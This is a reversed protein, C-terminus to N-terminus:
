GGVLSIYQLVLSGIRAHISPTLRLRLDLEKLCDRLATTAERGRHLHGLLLSVLLDEQQASLERQVLAAILDATVSVASDQSCEPGELTALLARTGEDTVFDNAELLTLVVAPEVQVFRYHLLALRSVFVSYEEHTLKGSHRLERLVEQTNVAEIGFGRALAAQGLDDSVLLPQDESMERGAFISGVGIDTIMESLQKIIDSDIDLESYSPMPEFSEALTLVSRTFEQHEEWEGESMEVLSFTGNINKGVHGLPPGSMTADHMSWRLEDLISQPVAVQKFRDRLKQGLGLEHVTLLALMDLVIKDASRLVEQAKQSERDDGSGFRIRIEDSKTCARWFEPAPVGLSASLFAFPVPEDRYLEHLKRFYRDREEVLGFIKAVGEQTVPISSLHTNDPFRTPYLLTTEQLAHVYKSQIDEIIYSLEQIGEEQLTVREGRQRGLLRQALDSNKAVKNSIHSEEGTELIHWWQEDSDGRLLVITGVEVSEPVKVDKHGGMFLAFYGLHISADDMGCRRAMYADSLWDEEGLYHKLQALKLLAIPEHCLELANIQRVQCLVRAREGCRSLVIAFQVRDVETADDQVCISEWCEVASAIDGVRGLIQAETEVVLKPPYPHAERIERTWALAERLRGSNWFSGLLIVAGPHSVNGDIAESFWDAADSYREQHHCLIALRWVIEMRDDNRALSLAELLITEADENTGRFHKHTAALALLKPDHPNQDLANKILPEITDEICLFTEVDCLLEVKLIDDWTPQDLSIDCRLLTAATEADGSNFQALALLYLMKSHLFQDQIQDFIAIAEVPRDTKFLIVGKIYLANSDDPVVRLVDEVDVAAEDFAGIALRAGARINRATSCLAQLETTELLDLARTAQEIAELYLTFVDRDKRVDAAKLLCGALVLRADYDFEDDQVLRRSLTVAEDFRQQDVWIQALVIACQQDAVVWNETLIFEDLRETEGAEWLAEILACAAHSVRPERELAQSALEIAQRPDNSLRAVVSANTLATTNNPQLCYAQELYACGEEIDDAAIACSGLNTLLRFELDIPINKASDKLINLLSQASTVKGARTLDRASDLKSALVIHKSDDSTMTSSSQDLTVTPVPRLEALLEAKLQGISKDFHSRTDSHLQEQRYALTPISQDSQLLGAILKSLFTSVIQQVLTESPRLPWCFEGVKIFSNFIKESSDHKGHGLEDFITEFETSSIWRNLAPKVEIGEFQNCTDTIALTVVDQKRMLFQRIGEMALARVAGNGFMEILTSQFEM